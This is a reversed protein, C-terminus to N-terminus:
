INKIVKILKNLLQFLELTSTTPIHSFLSLIQQKWAEETGDRVLPRFSLHGTLSPSANCPTEDGLDGVSSGSTDSRTVSSRRDRLNLSSPPYVINSVVSTVFDTNIPVEDLPSESGIEDDSSEEIIRRQSLFAM